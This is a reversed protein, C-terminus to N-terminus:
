ILGIYGSNMAMHIWKYIYIYYTYTYAYISRLFDLAIRSSRAKIRDADARAAHLLRQFVLVIIEGYLVHMCLCVYM